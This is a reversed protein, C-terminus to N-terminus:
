KDLLHQDNIWKAIVDAYHTHVKGTPHSGNPDAVCPQNHLDPRSMHYIPYRADIVPIHVNTDGEWLPTNVYYDLSNPDVDLPQAAPDTEQFGALGIVGFKCGHKVALTQMARINWAFRQRQETRDVNNRYFAELRHNYAVRFFNILRFRNDWRWVRGETWCHLTRESDGGSLAFFEDPESNYYHEFAKLISPSNLIESRLFEERCIHNAIAAYLVLDYKDQKLLYDERILSAYAGCGRAGANIFHCDPIRECLKWPYTDADGVGDGYTFSCGVILAKKPRNHPAMIPLTPRIEKLRNEVHFRYTVDDNVGFAKKRLYYEGAFFTGDIVIIIGLLVKVFVWFKRM